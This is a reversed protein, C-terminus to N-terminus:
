RANDHFLKGTSYLLKNQILEEPVSLQMSRKVKHYVILTYFEMHQEGYNNDFIRSCLKGGMIIVRLFTKM